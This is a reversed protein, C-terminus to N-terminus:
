PLSQRIADMSNQNLDPRPIFVFGYDIDGSQNSVEIDGRVALLNDVSQPYPSKVKHLTKFTPVTALPMLFDPYQEMAQQHKALLRLGQLSPHDTFVQLGDAPVPRDSRAWLVELNPLAAMAKDFSEQSMTGRHFQLYRLNPCKQLFAAGRDGAAGNDLIIRIIHPFGDLKDVNIVNMGFCHKVEFVRLNRHVNVATVFDPSPSGSNAMYHFRAETLNPFESLVAIGADSLKQNQIWVSQLKPFDRLRQIHTDTMAGTGSNQTSVAFGIVDKNPDDDKHRFAVFDAGLGEFFAKAANQEQITRDPLPPVTPIEYALVVSLGSQEYSSIPIDKRVGGIEVRLTDVAAASKALAHSRPMDAPLQVAAAGGVPLYVSHETGDLSVRAILSSHACAGRDPLALSHSGSTIGRRVFEAVRRGSLEYISVRAVGVARPLDLSLVGDVLRLETCAGRPAVVAGVGTSQLSFGGDADTGTGVDAQLLRVSAGGIPTGHTNTVTGSLAIQAETPLSSLMLAAGCLLVVCTRVSYMM